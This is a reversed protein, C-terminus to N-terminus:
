AEINMMRCIFSHVEDDVLYSTHDNEICSNYVLYRYLRVFTLMHKDCDYTFALTDIFYGGTTIGANNYTQVFLESDVRYPSYRRLSISVGYASFFDNDNIERMHSRCSSMFGVINTVDVLDFILIRKQNRIKNYSELLNMM